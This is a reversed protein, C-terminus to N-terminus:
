WLYYVGMITGYIYVMYYLLYGLKTYLPPILGHQFHHCVIKCISIEHLWHSCITLKKEENPLPQPQQIKQQEWHTVVVNGQHQWCTGWIGFTNGWHIGLLEESSGM